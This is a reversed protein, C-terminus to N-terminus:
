LETPTPKRLKGLAKGAAGGLAEGGLFLAMSPVINLRSGVLAGPLMGLFGGAREAREDKPATVVGVGSGGTYAATLIRQLSPYKWSPPGEGRAFRPLLKGPHKELGVIPGKAALTEVGGKGTTRAVPAMAQWSERIATLPHKALQGLAQPLTQRPVGPYVDGKVFKPNKIKYMGEGQALLSQWWTSPPQTVAGKAASFAVSPGAKRAAGRFFKGLFDTVVNAEKKLQPYDNLQPFSSM